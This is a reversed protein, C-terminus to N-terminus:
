GRIEIPSSLDFRQTGKARVNMPYLESGAHVCHAATLVLDRAIATGTCASSRQGTVVVVHRALPEDAV